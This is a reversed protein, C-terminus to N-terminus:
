LMRDKRRIDDAFPEHASVMKLRPIGSQFCHRSYTLLLKSGFCALLRLHLILHKHLRWMDRLRKLAFGTSQRSDRCARCLWTRTRLPIPVCSGNSSLSLVAILLVMQVLVTQWLVPLQTDLSSALQCSLCNLSAYSGDQHFAEFARSRQEITGRGM